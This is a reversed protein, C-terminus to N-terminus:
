QKKEDTLSVNVNAGCRGASLVPLQWWLTKMSVGREVEVVSVVLPPPPEASMM